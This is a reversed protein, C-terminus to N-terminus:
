INSIELFGELGIGEQPKKKLRCWDKSTVSVAEWLTQKVSWALVRNIKNYALGQDPDTPIHRTVTHAM